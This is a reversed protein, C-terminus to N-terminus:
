ATSLGARAGWPHASFHVGTTGGHTRAHEVMNTLHGHIQAAHERPTGEGLHYHPNDIHINVVDHTKQLHTRHSRIVSPNSTPGIVKGTIDVQVPFDKQNIIGRNLDTARDEKEKPFKKANYQAGYLLAIVAGLATGAGLLGGLTTLAGSLTGIGKIAASLPTGLGLLAGSARDLIPLVRRGLGFLFVSDLVGWFTTTAGGAAGASVGLATIAANLRWVSAAAAAAMSLTAAFAGIAIATAAKPNKFLWDTLKGLEQAASKMGKTFTPLLPLFIAGLVNSMNTVLARWAFNFTNSYRTWMTDVAQGPPAIRRLANQNQVMQSQVEPRTIAMLYRGGQVGFANMVDTVYRGPTMSKRIDALYKIADDLKLNGKEDIFKLHGDSDFVGLDELSQRRVKSMHNTLSTAGMLYEMFRAIGAGGRGKLFGTQGMTMLQNFITNMPVGYGLAEPIFMRGQRIIAEMNEPQTFMLRTAIDIMNHLPNGSYAAFLHSLQALQTAAQVPDINKPSLMLVDAAKAIQPFASYLRSPSNLGASATASMEKAITTVSQATINSLNLALGYFRALQDGALGTAIGVSTMAQQLDAAQKIGTVIAAAGGIALGGYIAARAALVKRRQADLLRNQEAITANAGRTSSTTEAMLRSVNSTARFAIGVVWSEMM